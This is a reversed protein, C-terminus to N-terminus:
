SRRNWTPIYGDNRILDNITEIEKVKPLLHTLFKNLMELRENESVISLLAQRQPAELGSKQAIMFSPYQGEVKYMDEDIPDISGKYAVETLENFLEITKEALDEDRTEPVDDLWRVVAFSVQDPGNQELEVVEYRREGETVIDVKGDPYKETVEIIKATCGISHLRDEEIYNIGFSGGEKVCEEILKKYREEFIHLPVRSHPFLVVGLPFLPIRVTEPM